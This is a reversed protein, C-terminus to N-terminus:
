CAGGGCRTFMVHGHVWKQGSLEFLVCGQLPRGKSAPFEIWQINQSHRGFRGKLNDDGGKMEM